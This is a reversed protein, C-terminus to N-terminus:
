MSRPPLVGISRLAPLIYDRSAAVEASGYLEPAFVIALVCVASVLWLNMRNDAVIQTAQRRRSRDVVYLHLAGAVLAAGCAILVPGSELVKHEVTPRIKYQPPLALYGVVVALMWLAAGALNARLERLTDRVLVPLGAMLRSLLTAILAAAIALLLLMLLPIWLVVFAEPHWAASLAAIFTIALGAILQAKENTVVVIAIAWVAVFLLPLGYWPTRSRTVVDMIVFVALWTTALRTALNLYANNLAGIHRPQLPHLGTDFGVYVMSALPVAAWFWRPIALERPGDCIM